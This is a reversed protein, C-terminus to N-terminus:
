IGSIVVLALSILLWAAFIGWRGLQSKWEDLSLIITVAFAVAMVGVPGGEHGAVLALPVGLLLIAAGTGVNHRAIPWQRRAAKPPLREEIRQDILRDVREVLSEAVTDTYAPGLDRLTDLHHEFEEQLDPDRHRTRSRGRDTVPM